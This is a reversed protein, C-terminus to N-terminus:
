DANVPAATVRRKKIRFNPYGRLPLPIWFDGVDRTIAPIAPIPLVFSRVPFVTKCSPIM